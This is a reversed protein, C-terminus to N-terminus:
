QKELKEIRETLQQVAKTLVSIMNGLNREIVEKEGIKVSEIVEYDEMVPIEHEGIVEGKENYLDVKETVPKNVEEIKTEIVKIHKGNILKTTKTKVEKEEKITKQREKTITQEEMIDRTKHVQVFKPLTSHDIKGNKGKILKIASLADGEYFPTRDTFTLASVDGVVYVNNDGANTNDGVTLGGNVVLKCAPATENIGVNGDKLVLNFLFFDDNAENPTVFQVGRRFLVERGDGCFSGDANGSPDYGISVAYYGSTDGVQLVKYGSSYGFRTGRLGVMQSNNSNEVGITGDVILRHGLATTGIGVKGEKLYLTNAVAGSNVSTFPVVSNQTIKVNNSADVEVVGSDLQTDTNQAHKKTVADEIDAGASTIDALENVNDAKKMFTAEFTADLDEDTGQVHSDASDMYNQDAHNGWSYATNWNPTDAQDAKDDLLTDVTPSDYKATDLDTIFSDVETKNYILGSDYQLTTDTGVLGTGAMSDVGHRTITDFYIIDGNRLIYRGAWCVGTTFLVLLLGLVIRDRYRM